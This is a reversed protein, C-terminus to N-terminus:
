NARVVCATEDMLVREIGQLSDAKECVTRYPLSFEEFGGQGWRGKRRAVFVSYDASRVEVLAEELSSFSSAARWRFTNEFYASLRHARRGVLVKDGPHLVDGLM